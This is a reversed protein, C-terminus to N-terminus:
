LLVRRRREVVLSTKYYLLNYLGIYGALYLYLGTRLRAHRARRSVRGVDGSWFKATVSRSGNRPSGSGVEWRTCWRPAPRDAALSM